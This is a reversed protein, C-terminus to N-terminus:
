RPWVGVHLYSVTFHGAVLLLLLLWYYNHYRYLLNYTMNKFLSDPKGTTLLRPAFRCSAFLMVAFIASGLGLILIAWHTGADPDGAEPLGTHFVSMMIHAVLTVGFLWWYWLHYKNFVRYVKNEPSIQVGILRLLSLFTRCSAFVAIALVLTVIGLIIAIRENTIAPTDVIQFLGTTVSSSIFYIM